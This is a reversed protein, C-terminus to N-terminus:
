RISGRATSLEDGVYYVHPTLYIILESNSKNHSRNQFLKGLLPIDGLIPFKSISETDFEQILGGLVITEGDKLKITSDLVRHDITPPVASNLGNKPTSFEPRIEAIIEGTATVWPTVELIMEARITEFRESEQIVVQNSGSIPTETKLIFYQTTGISISATHGSLTAIQPRSRVNAKGETELAKIQVYFDEPLKAIRGLGIGGGIDKLFNNVDSGTASIDVAPFLNNFLGATSDIQSGFGVNLRFEGIDQRNFDVVIAEVLVQPVPRDVERIFRVVEAIAERTGMLLVGNHEKVLKLSVERQVNEPLLDPLQDVRIHNLRVLRSNVIGQLNKGGIMYIGNEEYFSFETGRLLFALADDLTVNSARATIEGKVEEYVVLDRGAQVFLDRLIDRINGKSVDLSVLSDEINIRFRHAPGSTGNARSQLRNEILFIGEKQELAFGNIEMLTSLAQEFPLSQVFGTVKGQVGQAPVVNHGSRETVERALRMLDANQLNLSLLGEEYIIALPVEAPMTVQPKRFKFVSGKRELELDFQETILEFAAIVTINVLHITIRESIPDDVFVNLGYKSGIARLVDSLDANKFDLVQITETASPPLQEFRAPPGDAKTSDKGAPWAHAAPHSFNVLLWFATLLVRIM